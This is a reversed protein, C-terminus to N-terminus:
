YYDVLNLRASSFLWGESTYCSILCTNKLFGFIGTRFAIILEPWFIIGMRYDQDIYSTALYEIRALGIQLSLIHYRYGM